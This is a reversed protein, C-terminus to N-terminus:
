LNQVQNPPRPDLADKFVWANRNASECNQLALDPRETRLRMCPCALEATCVLNLSAPEPMSM